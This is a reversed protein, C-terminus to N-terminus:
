AVEYFAEHEGNEMMSLIFLQGGKTALCVQTGSISAVTITSPAKWEAVRQGMVINAALVSQRTVQIVLPSERNM